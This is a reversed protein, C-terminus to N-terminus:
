LDFLRDICPDVRAIRIQLALEIQRERRLHMMRRRRRRRSWLHANGFRQRARSDFVNTAHSLADCLDAVKEGRSRSLHQADDRGDSPPLKVRHSVVLPRLVRMIDGALERV